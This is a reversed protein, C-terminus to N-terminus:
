HQVSCLRVAYGSSVILGCINASVVFEPILRRDRSRVSLHYIFPGTSSRICSPCPRVSAHVFPGLTRVSWPCTFSRGSARVFPCACPRVSWPRTFSRSPGRVVTAHVFPRTFSRLFARDRSRVSLYARVLPLASSCVAACVSTPHASPGQLLVFPRAFSHASM